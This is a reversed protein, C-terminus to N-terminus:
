HPTAVSDIAKRFDDMQRQREAETTAPLCAKRPQMSGTPYERQCQQEANDNAHNSQPMDACGTLLMFVTFIPISIPIPFRM